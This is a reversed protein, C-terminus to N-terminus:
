AAAMHREHEEMSLIAPPKGKSIKGDVLATAAALADTTNEFKQFHKLKVIQLLPSTLDHVPM